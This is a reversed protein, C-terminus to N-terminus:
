TALHGSYAQNFLLVLTCSIGGAMVLREPWRQRFLLGTLVLCTFLVALVLTLTAFAEPQKVGVEGFATWRLRILFVRLFELRSLVPGTLVRLGDGGPQLTGYRVLNVVWWWGGLAFTAALTGATAGLWPWAWTRLSRGRSRRRYAIALVVPVIPLLSLATAKSLCAAALALTLVVLRRRSPGSAMIAIAVAWVVSSSAISFGDNQVAGSVFHLQPILLPVFAAVKGLSERGTLERTAVYCCVPVTLAVSLATFVRLLFIARDYRSDGADYLNYVAAAAYYYLPPHLTMQDRQPGLVGDALSHFSERASVPTPQVDTFLPLARSQPPQVPQAPPAPPVFRSLPYRDAAHALAYADLVEDQMYADGPRPWGGGEAVRVVSNVHAVEDPTRFDPTVVAWIVCVLFLLVSALAVPMPMLRM